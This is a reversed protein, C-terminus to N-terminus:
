RSHFAATRLFFREASAEVRGMVRHSIGLDRSGSIGSGSSRIRVAADYNMKFKANDRLLAALNPLEQVTKWPAAAAAPADGSGRPLLKDVVFANLIRELEEVTAATFNPVTTAAYRDFLHNQRARLIIQPPCVFVSTPPTLAPPPAPHPASHSTFAPYPFPLHCPSTPLLPRGATCVIWHDTTDVMAAPYPISSHIPPHPGAARARDSVKDDVDTINMQYMIEYGFYEEM